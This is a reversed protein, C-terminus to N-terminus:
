NECLMDRTKINQQLKKMVEQINPNNSFIQYYENKGILNPLKDCVLLHEQNEIQNFCFLRCNLNSYSTRFNDKVNIM